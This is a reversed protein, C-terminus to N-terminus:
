DTSCSVLGPSAPCDQQLYPIPDPFKAPPVRIGVSGARSMMLRVQIGAHARWATSPFVCLVIAIVGYWLNLFKPPCCGCEAGIVSRRPLVPQRPPPAWSHPPMPRLATLGGCPACPLSAWAHPPPRHPGRMPRLAALSGRTCRFPLRPCFLVSPTTHVPIGWRPSHPCTPGVGPIPNGAGAYRVLYASSIRAQSTPCVKNDFVYIFQCLRLNLAAPLWLPCGSAALLKRAAQLWGALWGALLLGGMSSSLQEAHRPM